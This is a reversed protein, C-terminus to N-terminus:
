AGALTLRLVPVRRIGATKEEYIGYGTYVQKAKEYLADRPAEAVGAAVLLQRRSLQFSRPPPLPTHNRDRDM